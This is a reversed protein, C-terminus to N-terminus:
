KFFERRDAAKMAKQKNPQEDWFVSRDSFLASVNDTKTTSCKMASSKKASLKKIKEVIKLHSILIVM